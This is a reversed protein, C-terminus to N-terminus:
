RAGTVAPSDPKHKVNDSYVGKNKHRRGQVKDPSRCMTRLEPVRIGLFIDGEGYQGPGTKFFWQSINAREPDALAQLHSQIEEATMNAPM